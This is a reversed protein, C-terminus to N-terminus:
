EESEGITSIVLLAFGGFFLIVITAHDQIISNWNDSVCLSALIMIAGIIRLVSRVVSIIKEKM